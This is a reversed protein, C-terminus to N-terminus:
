IVECQEKELEEIMGQVASLYFDNLVAKGIVEHAEAMTWETFAISDVWEHWITKSEPFALISKVISDLDGLSVDINISKYKETM